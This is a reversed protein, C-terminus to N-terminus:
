LTEEKSIIPHLSGKQFAAGIAVKQSDVALTLYYSSTLSIRLYIKNDSGQYAAPSLDGGSHTHRVGSPYCYGAIREDIIKDAGYAYGYLHFRFMGTRQPVEMPTRLHLFINTSAGANNDGKSFDGSGSPADEYPPGSHILRGQFITRISGHVNLEGLVDRHKTWIANLQAPNVAVDTASGTTIEAATAIRILGRKSSTAPPLNFGGSGDVTVSDAPLATLALDFALLLDVGASKYALAQNDNSWIALLTGDALYFGLERVWYELDNGDEVGTLHIQANNVREGSVPIRRKENHLATATNDPTWAADGLAIEAITADLGNNHSNFVANLGALTIVPTLTASM